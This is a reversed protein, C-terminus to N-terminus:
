YKGFGLFIARSNDQNMVGVAREGSPNHCVIKVPRLYVLDSKLCDLDFLVQDAHRERLSAVSEILGVDQKRVLFVGNKGGKSYGRFGYKLAAEYPKRIRGLSELFIQMLENSFTFFLSESPISPARSVPITRTGELYQKVHDIFPGIGATDYQWSGYYYERTRM